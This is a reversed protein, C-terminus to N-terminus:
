GCNISFPISLKIKEICADCCRCDYSRYSVLCHNAIKNQAKKNCAADSLGLPKTLVLAGVGAATGLAAARLLINKKLVSVLLHIIYLM